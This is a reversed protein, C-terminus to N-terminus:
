TAPSTPSYSPVSTTPAYTPAPVVETPSYSPAITSGATPSYSPSMTTPAYTPMATPEYISSPAPTLTPAESEVDYSYTTQLARGRLMFKSHLVPTDSLLMQSAQELERELEDLLACRATSVVMVMTMLKMM